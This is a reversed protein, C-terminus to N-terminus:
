LSMCSIMVCCCYGNHLISKKQPQLLQNILVERMNHEATLMSTELAFVREHIFAKPKKGTLIKTEMTGQLNGQFYKNRWVIGSYKDM